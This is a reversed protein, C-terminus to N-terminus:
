LTRLRLAYGFPEVVNGFTASADSDHAVTYTQRGLVDFIGLTVEVGDSFVIGWSNAAPVLSALQEYILVGNIAPDAPLSLALDTGTVNGAADAFTIATADLSTLLACNTGPLTFPLTLGDYTANDLGFMGLVVSNPGLNQGVLFHAAGPAAIGEVAATATPLGTGIACGSGFNATTGDIAGGSTMAGDLIAHAFGFSQINNGIMQVDVVLWEGANLTIPALTTFPIQLGGGPGGWPHPAASGDDPMYTWPGNFVEILPSTLNAAFGASPAVISTTGIRIILQQIAFPGPAGVQPIPGDFRFSLQDAVFNSQSSETAGYFMQVRAEPQMLPLLSFNSLEFSPSATVPLELFGQAVLSTSCMSLVAAAIVNYTTTM